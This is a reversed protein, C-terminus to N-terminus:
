QPAAEDTLGASEAVYEVAERETKCALFEKYGECFKSAEELFKPDTSGISKTDM